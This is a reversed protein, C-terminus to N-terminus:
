RQFNFQIVAVIIIILIALSIISQLYTSRVEGSSMQEWPTSPYWIPNIGRFWARALWPVGLFIFIGPMGWSIVLLLISTGGLFAVIAELWKLNYAEVLASIVGALFFLGISSWFIRRSVLVTKEVTM